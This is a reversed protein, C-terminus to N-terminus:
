PTKGHRVAERIAQPVRALALCLNVGFLSGFALAAYLLGEPVGGNARGFVFAVLATVLCLLLLGPRSLRYHLSLGQTTSQIEFRGQNYIAFVPWRAPASGEGWFPDNFTVYNAGREAV